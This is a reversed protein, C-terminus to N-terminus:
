GDNRPSTDSDGLVSTEREMSEGKYEGTLTRLFKAILKVDRDPLKEGLQAKAMAKIADELTKQSGDHLYPATLAVNRLSPVRFVHMDDDDGTVLFRGQDAKTIVRGKKKFPDAFIGLRQFLNGGVNVGQHCSVCGYSKFLDYGHKEDSSIAGVDGRLYQDFRANPTILSREFTVLADVLNDFILGDAYAEAFAAPYYDDGSIREVVAEPLYDVGNSRLFTKRKHTDLSKFAGRWALHYNLSVNFLTPSNILFLRNTSAESLKNGDDGGEGLDHCQTCARVGDPSIRPDHFLRDGLAVRREDLGHELPVPLIPEIALSAFSLLSLLCVCIGRLRLLQNVM